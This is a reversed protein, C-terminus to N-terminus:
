AFKQYIKSWVHPNDSLNHVDNGCVHRDVMEEIPRTPLYPSNKGGFYEFIKVDYSMDFQLFRNGSWCLSRCKDWVGNSMVNVVALSWYQAWSGFRIGAWTSCRIKIVCFLTYWNRIYIRSCIWFSGTLIESLWIKKFLRRWIVWFINGTAVNELQRDPAPFLCIILYRLGLCYLLLVQLFFIICFEQLIKSDDKILFTFFDFLSLSNLCNHDLFLRNVRIHWFLHYFVFLRGLWLKAQLVDCIHDACCLM